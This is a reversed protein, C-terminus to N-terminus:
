TWCPPSAPSRTPKPTSMPAPWCSAPRSTPPPWFTDAPSDRTRSGRLTKRGRRDSAPPRTGARSDQRRAMGRDGRRASRPRHGAAAQPDDGPLTAPGPRNGAAGRRRRAPRRGVRRDRHLLPLRGGGRLGGRHAGRDSSPPHWPARTSRAGCGAGRAPRDDVGAPRTRGTPVVVLRDAIIASRAHSVESAILLAYSGRHDESGTM